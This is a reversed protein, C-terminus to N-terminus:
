TDGVPLGTGGRLNKGGTLLYDEIIYWALQYSKENRPALESSLRFEYRLQQFEVQGEMLLRALICIRYRYHQLKEVVTFPDDGKLLQMVLVEHRVLYEDLKLKLKRRARRSSPRHLMVLFQDM